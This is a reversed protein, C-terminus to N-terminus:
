SRGGNPEEMMKYVSMTKSKAKKDHSWLEELGCNGLKGLKPSL